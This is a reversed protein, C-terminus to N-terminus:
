PPAAERAVPLAACAALGSRRDACTRCPVGRPTGFHDGMM